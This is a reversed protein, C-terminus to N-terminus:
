DRDEVLPQYTEGRREKRYLNRWEGYGHFSLWLEFTREDLDIDTLVTGSRGGTDALIRGNPDIILSRKNSYNSAVFFVGNDIARARAVVDWMYGDGRIDGWIPLFIIEAGKLALSRAVEPFFNDYCIQLGVTGFDTKFVPYSDSPTVGGAIETGALHTKRYKGVLEGNRGILLATNYVLTGDREAIGAVVYMGWKRAVEGLLQSTPGPVPEAVEVSTKGTSVRTILEGLCVIDARAKGAEEVKEAFIRRNEEPTSPEPPEYSVTAVKIKRHPSPAAEELSVDDWWVTGRDTWRLTLELDITKALLPATVIKEARYWDGEKVYSHVYEGLLEGGKEDNWRLRISVCKAISKVGQTRFYVRIRYSKNGLFDRGTVTYPGPFGTVAPAGGAQLGRISTAWYGFTGPSGQSSTRASTKGSRTVTHDVGFQPAIEPRPFASRWAIPLKREADLDEFGPNEVLNAALSTQVQSVPAQWPLGNGLPCLLVLGLIISGRGGTKEVLPKLKEVFAEAERITRRMKWNGAIVPWRM